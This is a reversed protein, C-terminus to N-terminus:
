RYDVAHLAALVRILETVCGDVETDSYPDLDAARRLVRGDVHAVVAFPAGMVSDDECLM